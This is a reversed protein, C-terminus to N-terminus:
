VPGGTSGSGPQVGTHRHTDLSIGGGIMDGGSVIKGTVEVDGVVVLKPATIKVQGPWLAIRVSGDLSQLVAHDQDEAAIVHGTLINPIFLGDEFSHKRRTNPSSEAFSQMFLSIDRDNAKIWGLDGPKIPFHLVYGGGGMQLVPVSAVEARGVVQGETTVLRVLPLVQARNKARDYSVVRAPLMDDLGQAFKETVHRLVGIMSDTNAPNISPQAIVM